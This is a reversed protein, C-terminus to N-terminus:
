GAVCGSMEGDAVATVVYLPYNAGSTIADAATPSSDPQRAVPRLSSLATGLAELVRHYPSASTLSPPPPATARPTSRPGDRRRIGSHNVSSSNRMRRAAHSRRM